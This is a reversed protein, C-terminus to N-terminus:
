YEFNNEANKQRRRIWNSDFLVNLNGSHNKEGRNSNLHRSLYTVESSFYNPFHKYYTVLYNKWLYKLRIYPRWTSLLVRNNEGFM